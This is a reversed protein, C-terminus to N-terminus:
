RQRLKALAERVEAVAREPGFYSADEGRAKPDAVFFDLDYALTRLVEEEEASSALTGAEAEWVAAQFRAVTSPLAPPDGLMEELLAVVGPAPSM